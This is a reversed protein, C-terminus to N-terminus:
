DRFPCNIDRISNCYDPFIRFSYACPTANEHESLKSNTYGSCIDVGDIFPGRRQMSAVNESVDTVDGTM